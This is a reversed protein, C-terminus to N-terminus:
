TITHFKSLTVIKLTYLTYHIDIEAKFDESTVILCNGEPMWLYLTNINDRKTSKKLHLINM